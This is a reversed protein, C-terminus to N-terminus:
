LGTLGVGVAVSTVVDHDDVFLVQWRKSVFIGYAREGSDCWLFDAPPYDVQRGDASVDDSYAQHYMMWCHFGKAEMTTKASDIRSGIPVSRLVAAKTSPGDRGYVEDRM